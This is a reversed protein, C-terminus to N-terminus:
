TCSELAKDLAEGLKDAGTVGVFQQIIKGNCEILITPIAIVGYKMAIVRNSDVDIKRFEVRDAYKKKVKEVILDQERCPGCWEAYFDMLVLKALDVM